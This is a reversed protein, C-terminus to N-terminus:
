RPWERPADIISSGIDNVSASGVLRMTRAIDRRLISLIREVGPQGAACLGFAWARGIMAARAGLAIAKVVDAGSRIGGDVLVDVQNGVAAVVDSLVAFTPPVSDLQRGGHNSVIVASAGFSVARRADDPTLIGKVIVPGGFQERIWVLDDWTPPSAFWQALAEEATLQTGNASIWGANALEVQFGGHAQDLLWQPRLAVFPVMATITRRDLKLPLSLGFRSERRRDGPIQTDMTVVISAFGLDRAQAVLREAGARGGLFYLQFWSPSTAANRVEEMRHGSMSSLTFITGATGAAAAGAVDGMTHMMRTFGVPGLVVPMAIETGLFTTRLDPSSGTTVGLHPLLHVAGVALLNTRLTSENGAGGEVYSKVPAPVRWRAIAQAHEVSRIRGATRADRRHRWRLYVASDMQRM